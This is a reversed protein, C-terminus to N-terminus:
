NRALELAFDERVRHDSLNIEFLIERCNFKQIRAALDYKRILFDAEMGDFECLAPWYTVPMVAAVADIRPNDSMSLLSSFGLRSSGILIVKGQTNLFKEAYINTMSNTQTEIEDFVNTGAKIAEAMKSLDHCLGDFFVLEGGSNTISKAYEEIMCGPEKVADLPFLPMLLLNSNTVTGDPAAVFYDFTKGSVEIQENRFNM